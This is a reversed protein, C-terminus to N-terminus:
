RSLSGLRHGMAVRELATRAAKSAAKGPSTGGFVMPLAVNEQATYVPLLNSSQFVFGM